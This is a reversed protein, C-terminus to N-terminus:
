RLDFKEKDKRQSRRKGIIDVTIYGINGVFIVGLWFGFHNGNEYISAQNLNFATMCVVAYSIFLTMSNNFFELTRRRRDIHSRISGYFIIALVNLNLLYVIQIGSCDLAVLASLLLMWQHIMGAPFLFVAWKNQKSLTIDKYMAQYKGKFDQEGLHEHNIWLFAGMAIPVFLQVAAIAM